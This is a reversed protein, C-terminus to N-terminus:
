ESVTLEKNSQLLCASLAKPSFSVSHHPLVMMRDWEHCHLKCPLLLDDSILHYSALNAFPLYNLFFAENVM